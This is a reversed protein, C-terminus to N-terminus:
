GGGIPMFLSVEDGDAMTDDPRRIIGAASFLGVEGPNLQLLGILDRYTAGAETKVIIGNASDYGPVRRSLLGFLKVKITLM